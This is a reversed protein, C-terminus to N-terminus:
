AGKIRVRDGHKLTAPPDLVIEDGESLGEIVAIKGLRQEGLALRQFHVIDRELVFVGTQGDMRLVANAPILLAPAADGDSPSPGKPANADLFVIRAGMEPRLRDDRDEFAIRVEVTAKTRNATPWIRDVRGKYAKDPYADLFVQTPSGIKVAALSTEPVEAQVELSKFDVMTVVSGRASTGGVVNPSVVEGVEADKLVVIGDFPARVAMKDLTAKAQDRTARLVDLRAAAEEVGAQMVKVESEGHLVSVKSAELQAGSWTVRARATDLESKAQDRQQANGVGSELLDSARKFNLEALERIAQYQAVDAEAANQMSRLRELDREASKAEAEARVLSAQALVIDAEAHKYMAAYEDSFLRAVVDGRKVVSGEQVNMEVIRGPTDASLAARTKAIIYGNASTGSVAAAAASSRKAVRQVSVEPLRMSDIFGQIPAQFLWAATGAIVLFVLPAIWRPRRASRTRRAPAGRDIKLPQVDV